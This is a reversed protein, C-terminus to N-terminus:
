GRHRRNGLAHGRDRDLCSVRFDVEHPESRHPSNPVIAAFPPLRPMYSNQLFSLDCRLLFWCRGFGRGHRRWPDSSFRRDIRTKRLHRICIRYPAEAVLCEVARTLRVMLEPNRKSEKQLNTETSALRRASTAFTRRAVVSAM